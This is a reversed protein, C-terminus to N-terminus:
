VTSDMLDIALRVEPSLSPGSDTVTDCSVLLFTCSLVLVLVYIDIEDKTYGMRIHFCETFTTVVDLWSPHGSTM